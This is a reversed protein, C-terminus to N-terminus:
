RQRRLQERLAMLQLLEKQLVVRQREDSGVQEGSQRLELDEVQRSVRDRIVEDGGLREGAEGAEGDEVQREVLQGFQVSFNEQFQNGELLEKHIM